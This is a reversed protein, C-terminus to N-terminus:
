PRELIVVPTAGSLLRPKAIAIRAHTIRADRM